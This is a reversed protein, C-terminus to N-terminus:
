IEITETESGNGIGKPVQRQLAVLRHALRELHDAPLSPPPPPANGGIGLAKAGLEAARLALNDSITSTPMALKEQLVELSRNVLAKFREEITARIVPDVLEDKREVLREQFADSSIVLSVWAPTYGFTSALANQHVGPNAIIQDIM